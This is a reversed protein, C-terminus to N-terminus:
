VALLLTKTLLPAPSPLRVSGSSTRALSEVCTSEDEWRNQLPAIEKKKCPLFSIWASPDTPTDATASLPWCGPTNTGFQEMPICPRSHLGTDRSTPYGPLAEWPQVGGQQGRFSWGPKWSAQALHSGLTPWGWQGCPRGRWNQQLGSMGAWTVGAGSAQDQGTPRM